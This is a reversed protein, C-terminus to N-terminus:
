ECWLDCTTKSNLNLVRASVCVGLPSGDIFIVKNGEHLDMCFTKAKFVEGNIIFTEDKVAKEVLYETASFAANNFFFLTILLILKNM